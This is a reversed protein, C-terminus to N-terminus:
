GTIIRKTRGARAVFPTLFRSYRGHHRDFLHQKVRWRGELGSLQVSYPQSFRQIFAEESSLWPNFVWRIVYCCSITNGTAYCCCTKTM